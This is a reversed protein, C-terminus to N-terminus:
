PYQMALGTIGTATTGTAYIRIVPWPLRLVGGPVSIAVQAGPADGQALIMLKGGVDVYFDPCAVPLDATDSPTIARFHAM